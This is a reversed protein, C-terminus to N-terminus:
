SSCKQVLESGQAKRGRPQPSNKARTKKKKSMSNAEMMEPKAGPGQGRKGRNGKVNGKELKPKEKGAIGRKEGEKFSWGGELRDHKLTL